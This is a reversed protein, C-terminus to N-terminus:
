RKLVSTLDAPPTATLAVKAKFAPSHKKRTQKM